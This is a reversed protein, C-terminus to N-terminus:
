DDADVGTLVLGVTNLRRRAAEVSLEVIRLNSPGHEADPNLWRLAEDLDRHAEQVEACLRPQTAEAQLRDALARHTTIATLWRARTFRSM